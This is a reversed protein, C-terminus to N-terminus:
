NQITGTEGDEKDKKLADLIDQCLDTMRHLSSFHEQPEYCPLTDLEAEKSTKNGNREWWGDYEKTCGKGCFRRVGVHENTIAWVTGDDLKHEVRENIDEYKFHKCCMMCNGAIPKKDDMDKSTKNLRM